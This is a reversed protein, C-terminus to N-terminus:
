LYNIYVDIIIKDVERFSLPVSKNSEVHDKIKIMIKDFAEEIQLEKLRQQVRLEATKIDIAPINFSVLRSKVAEDVLDERNTTMIIGVRNTDIQDLKSFLVNLHGIYWADLREYNRTPFIGDVDDMSLIYFGHNSASRIADDFAKSIISETEGYKARAIDALNLRKYVYDDNKELLGLRSLTDYIVTNAITTKGTGPPGYLIFGKIGNKIGKEKQKWFIRTMKEIIENHLEGVVKERKLNILPM